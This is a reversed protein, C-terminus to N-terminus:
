HPAGRWRHRVEFYDITDMSAGDLNASGVTAWVNDVIATKTHLYVDVLRPKDHLIDKASHAFVSFVRFHKKVDDNPYSKKVTASIRAIARNQWRLYYPM